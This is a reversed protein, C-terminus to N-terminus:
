TAEICYIRYSTDCSLNTHDRAPRALEPLSTIRHIRQRIHYRGLSHEEMIASRTM